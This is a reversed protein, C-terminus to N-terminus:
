FTKRVVYTVREPVRRVIHMDRPVEITPQIAGSTDALIDRYDVIARLTKQNIHSLQELGGRVVIDMRPNSLIVERNEPLSLIEIPIESFTREAFQQVNIRVTVRNPTLVLANTTDVLEVSLDLPQRIQTFREHVTQWKSISRMLSPAGAVTITEPSVTVTGVQGYGERFSLTFNPEVVIRKSVMTDLALHLSEPSMSLPQVGLQSEIEEAFDRVTLTQHSPVNNLDVVWQLHPKWFLKALRWGLEKFTLRVTRPLPSALAKGPPLSHVVLPASVQIQYEESM